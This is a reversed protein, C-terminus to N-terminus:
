SHQFMINEFGGAPRIDSVGEQQDKTGYGKEDLEETRKVIFEYLESPLTSELYKLWEGIRNADFSYNEPDM